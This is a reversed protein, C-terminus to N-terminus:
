RRESGSFVTTDEILKPGTDDSTFLAAEDDGPVGEPIWNDGNQWIDNVLAAWEVEQVVSLLRRDELPELRLCRRPSSRENSGLRHYRPVWKGAACSM